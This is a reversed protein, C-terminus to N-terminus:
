HQQSPKDIQQLVKETFEDYRKFQQKTHDHRQQFVEKTLGNRQFQKKLADVTVGFRRQAEELTDEMVGSSIGYVTWRWVARNNAARMLYCCGADVRRYRFVYDDTRDPDDPWTRRM